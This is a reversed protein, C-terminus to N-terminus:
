ATSCFESVENTMDRYRLKPGHVCTASSLNLPATPTIKPDITTGLNRTHKPIITYPCDNLYTTEKGDVITTEKAPSTTYIKTFRGTQVSVTPQRVM